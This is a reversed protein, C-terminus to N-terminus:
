RKEVVKVEPAAGNSKEESSVKRKRAEGMKEFNQFEFFRIKKRFGNRNLFILNLLNETNSNIRESQNIISTRRGFSLNEVSTLTGFANGDRIAGNSRGTTGNKRLSEFDIQVHCHILWKIWLLTTGTWLLVEIFSKLRWTRVNGDAKAREFTGDTIGQSLCWTRYFLLSLLIPSKNTPLFVAPSSPNLCSSTFLNM